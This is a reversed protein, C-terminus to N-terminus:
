VRIMGNAYMLVLRRGHSRLSRDVARSRKRVLRVVRRARAFARAAGPPRRALRHCRARPRSRPGTRLRHARVADRPVDGRRRVRRHTSGRPGRRRRPLVRGPSRRRFRVRTSGSEGWAAFAGVREVDAADAADVAPPDSRAIDLASRLRALRATQDPWVYALLRERAASDTVDIPSLDCGRRSVVVPETGGPADGTWDPVLQVSSDLRGLRCEGITYGYADCLLNLGASAGLEFLRVPMDHVGVVHMLAAYVAASRDIDNTQPAHALWAHLTGDDDALTRRVVRDLSADETVPNPPWADSLASRAGGRALAHLAGAVRLPVADGKADVVGEWDLVARGTLTSRDLVRELSRMLRATFPSGLLACWRAQDVFAQRVFDEREGSSARGSM